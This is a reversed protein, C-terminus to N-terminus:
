RAPVYREMVLRILSLASEDYQRVGLLYTGPLVRAAIMSDYSQGNDDNMSVQRGIDDYLYAIPDGNGNAVAEILVLGGEEVTFSFWSAESSIQADHRLRNTLTGLEAIPYSGDM